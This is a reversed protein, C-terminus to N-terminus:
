WWQRRRSRLLSPLSVFLSPSSSFLFVSLRLSQSRFFSPSLTFRCFFSLRFLFLSCLSSCLLGYNCPSAPFVTYFFLFVPVVFLSSVWALLFFFFLLCVSSSPFLSLLFWLLLRFAFVSFLYCQGTMM